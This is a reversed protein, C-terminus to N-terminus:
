VLISMSPAKSATYDATNKKERKIYPAQFLRCICARVTSLITCSYKLHQVKLNKVNLNMRSFIDSIKLFLLFTKNTQFKTLDGLLAQYKHSFKHM